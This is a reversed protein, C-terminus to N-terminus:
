FRWGLGGHILTAIPSFTNEAFFYVPEVGYRLGIITFGPLTELEDQYALGFSLGSYWEVARGPNWIHRYSLTLSPCYERETWVAERVDLDYRPRGHSDTGFIGYQTIQYPVWALGGTLVFETSWSCRYTGSLSVATFNMAESSAGQGIESVETSKDHFLMHLPLIGTGLELSFRTPYPPSRHQWVRVPPEYGQAMATFTMGILILVSLIRVKM